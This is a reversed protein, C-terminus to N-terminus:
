LFLCCASKGLGPAKIACVKIRARLKNLILDSEVYAAVILLPRKKQLALELVKVVVNISSIKKEHIIILPNELEM